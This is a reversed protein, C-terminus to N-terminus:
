RTDRFDQRVPAHLGHKGMPYRLTDRTIGLERAARTVRAPDVLGLKRERADTFPGREHGFLLAGSATSSSKLRGPMSPSSASARMPHRLGQHEDKGSPVRAPEATHRVVHGALATDLEVNPGFVRGMLSRDSSWIIWRGPDYANARLMDPLAAIQVFAKETDANLGCSPEALYGQLSM